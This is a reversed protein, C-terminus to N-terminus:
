AFDRGREMMDLMDHDPSECDICVHALTIEVNSGAVNKKRQNKWWEPAKEPHCKWCDKEDIGQKGCGTCKKKAKEAKFKPCDSKKHYGNCGNVPCKLKTAGDDNVANLAVEKEQKRGDDGFSKSTRQIETIDDMIKEFDMTSMGAHAYRIHDLIMKVYMASRCKKAALTCLEEETMTVSYMSTTAMVQNYFDNAFKFQLKDLALELEIKAGTDKPSYKTKLSKMIKDARGYKCDSTKTKNIVALGHSTTQALTLLACMRKNKAYIKIKDANAGPNSKDFGDYESDKPFGIFKKEDLADEVELISAVAVVQAEFRDFTEKKGDWKQIQIGKLDSM